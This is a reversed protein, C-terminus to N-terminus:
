ASGIPIRSGRSVVHDIGALLDLVDDGGMDGVVMEAFKQGHGTSGRPNPEFVAYGRAVLLPVLGWRPWADQYAWVPGGHVHVILPHPGPGPPTALLGEIELGDPATWAVRERVSMSSRVVDTGDNATSAIERDGEGTEAVVIEPPPILGICARDRLRASPAAWRIGTARVGGPDDLTGRGHRDVPDIGVRGHGRGRVGPSLLRDDTRWDLSTVDVGGTDARRAEGTRPDVLLVDGAVILRDSCVAEVVAARSGDPSAVPVGLQVESTM